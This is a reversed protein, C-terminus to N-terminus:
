RGQMRLIVPATRLLILLDFWPSQHKLYYLDYQLKMLADEVSGGYPYNIQAWGTLGPRVALRTRYFPIQTELQSIFEPREPRPGVLSMEGRLVNWVQPLEDLRTARLLRGVRTVRSDDESAWRAEGDAEADARMSRFKYIRFPRGHRGTRVQSYFVPGPSDLRIALAILPLLALLLLSLALGALVDALRKLAQYATHTPRRQLPLAVYWQSGVHQVHVRGTLQEYLLPMPTITVGQEYCSMLAQVMTGPLNESIALVVDDARHDSVIAALREHGAFVPIGDVARGQKRPDDDVFAVVQYHASHSAAIIRQIATGAAGAGLIVARRRLLPGSLATAYLSRWALLLTASIIIALAPALRLPPSGGPPALIEPVLAVFATRSTFFFLALYLVLIAAGGALVRRVSGGLRASQRLDYMDSLWLWLTWAAILLLMWPLQEALLGWRPTLRGIRLWALFSAIVAAIVLLSDVMRLLLRRESFELAFHRRARLAGSVTDPLAGPSM